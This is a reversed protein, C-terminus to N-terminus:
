LGCNKRLVNFGHSLHQRLNYFFRFGNLIFGKMILFLANDKDHGFPGGDPLRNYFSSEIKLCIGKIPAPKRSIEKERNIPM